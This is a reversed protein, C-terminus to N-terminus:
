TQTYTYTCTYTHTRERARRQPTNHIRRGSVPAVRRLGSRGRTPSAPLRMRATAPWLVASGRSCTGLNGFLSAGGDFSRRVKAAARGRRGQATLRIAGHERVAVPGRRETQASRAEATRDRHLGGGLVGAAHAGLSRRQWGLDAQACPAPRPLARAHKDARANGCATENQRALTPPHVFERRARSSSSPTGCPVDCGSV